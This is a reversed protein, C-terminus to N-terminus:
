HRPSPADGDYVLLIRDGSERRGQCPLVARKSRFRYAFWAGLIPLAVLGAKLAAGLEGPKRPIVGRISLVVLLVLAAAFLATMALDIARGRLFHVLCVPADIKFSVLRERNAWALAPHVWGLLANVGETRREAYEVDTFGVIRTAVPRRGCALCFERGEPFLVRRGDIGLRLERSGM